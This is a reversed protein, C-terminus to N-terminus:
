AGRSYEKGAVLNWPGTSTQEGGDGDRARAGFSDMHRPETVHSPRTKYGLNVSRALGSSKLPTEPPSRGRLMFDGPQRRGDICQGELVFMPCPSRTISTSTRGHLM